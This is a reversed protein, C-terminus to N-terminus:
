RSFFPSVVVRFGLYRLRDDPDDWNRFACRALVAYYNFSGGRLPGPEAVWEWINGSMDLAGFPSVGGPFCSVATTTGVGTESTNAKNPDFDSGWPYARAGEGRVGRGLPSPLPGRAAKEWEAESPLLVRLKGAALGDWFPDRSGSLQRSIVSLQENLWDCYAMADYWTVYGVPHNDPDRLADKNFKDYGTARVFARFQAVTLPYKAIWYDYPLDCEHQPKEDDYKDSGMVFKGAPVPLFGFRPEKPLYWHEPDFRPDGLADLTDGARARLDPKAPLRPDELAVALKEAQSRRLDPDPKEIELLAAGALERGTLRHEPPLSNLWALYEGAFPPHDAKAFGYILLLVERWWPDSLVSPLGELGAQRQKVVWRATLFEQFTLHVFQFLEAREEFLGGRERVARLFAEIQEPRIGPYASLITRVSSEPIAAGAKGGRHMERALHSLWERQEEWTGGWNVLQQRAEDSELYQAQLIVKVAAEYLKARERPLESEGWKVSVVMSTMLPTGILRPLKQQEYRRNIERIASVIEKKTSEVDQPYLQRCWNEVLLAIENDNLPQVDLRLFDDGFVADERYGAERATVLLLNGPYIDNALREVEAKVQAREARSVVEDLGDLMLLCAGSLLLRDLFDESLELAPNRRQLYWPILGALTGTRPSRLREQPSAACVTKYERYYRLPIVIPLLQLRGKPLDFPPKKGSLAALALETALYATLTSKGCGPGGIIALRERQTLLTRLSVEKGDEKEQRREIAYLYAKQEALPDGKWERSLEQIEGM